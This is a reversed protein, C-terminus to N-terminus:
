YSGESRTYDILARGLRELPTPSPDPPMAVLKEEIQRDREYWEEQRQREQEAWEAEQCQNCVERSHDRTLMEGLTYGVQSLNFWVREQGCRSCKFAFQLQNPGRYWVLFGDVRVTNIGLPVEVNLGLRENLLRSFDAAMNMAHQVRQRKERERNAENYADLARKSAEVWQEGTHYEPIETAEVNEQENM